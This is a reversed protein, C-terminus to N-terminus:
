ALSDGGDFVGPPKTDKGAPDNTTGTGSSAVEIPSRPDLVPAQATGIAKPDPLPSAKPDTNNNSLM